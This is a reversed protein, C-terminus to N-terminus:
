YNTVLIERTKRDTNKGHYSSNAYGSSLAHVTYKRSWEELGLNRVGKHEVVNSLAFKVGRADLADLIRFLTYDDDECWGEFGRKGDNYSGTTILYPPDAYLFDGERLVSYDFDRYNVSTFEIGHIREMFSVLNAEISYNFCSRNMGFPTNFEHASNFRFQHNFAYCILVFLEIADKKKSKNYHERLALYGEKNVKSLSYRSVVKGIESLAEQVGITQLTKFLDVIFYNIDNAIVRSALVNACVDGGGCFLDVMTDAKSPFLNQLQPLLKYKGGIYNLPSKVAWNSKKEFMYIQEVLGRRNNPIRSKYRRYPIEKFRFSGEVAYKKCVAKLEETPVVGENNYSIVVYRVNALRIMDEFAIAARRKSCFDSRQGSYDRLGTVGSIEPYDYKAITELVHYNPLYERTNYPSDSYLVDARAVALLKEYPLNYSEFSLDGSSLVPEELVLAKKARADWHKLYAGYVGAINSVFPVANLLAALLYYYGDEDILAEKHWKEITLRIVDIRLANECTFYMRRCEDHPSYNQYIFCNEISFDTDKLALNNLYDLVNGVELRKFSPAKKLQHTGRSLVYSFYMQDNCIVSYGCQKFYGAVVGSGSFLDIISKADPAIEAVADAIDDLLLTKGGIFRM